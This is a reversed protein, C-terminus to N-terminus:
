KMVQREEKINYYEDHGNDYVQNNTSEESVSVLEYQIKGRVHNFCISNRLSVGTIKVVNEGINPYVSLCLNGSVWSDLTEELWCCVKFYAIKNRFVKIDKSRLIYVGYNDSGICKNRTITCDDTDNIEISNVKNDYITNRKLIINSPTRSFPGHEVQNSIKIGSTACEYIRNHVINLNESPLSIHIGSDISDYVVNDLIDSSKCMYVAFKGGRIINNKVVCKIQLSISVCDGSWHSYVVNKEFVNNSDLNNNNYADLTEHGEAINKPGAFYVTFWRKSGYFYCHRVHCGNANAVTLCIKNDYPVHVSIHKITVGNSTINLGDREVNNQFIHVKSADRTEGAFLIDPRDLNLIDNLYYNGPPFYFKTYNPNSILIDDITSGPTVVIHKREVTYTM